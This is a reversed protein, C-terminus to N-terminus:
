YDFSSEDILSSKSKLKNKIAASSNFYDYYYYNYHRVGWSTRFDDKLQSVWNMVEQLSNYIDFDITRVSYLEHDSFLMNINPISATSFENADFFVNIPQSLNTKNLFYLMTYDVNTGQSVNAVTKKVTSYDFSVPLDKVELPLTIYYDHFEGIATASSFVGNSARSVRLRAEKKLALSNLKSSTLSVDHDGYGSLAGNSSVWYDTAWRLNSNARIYLNIRTSGYDGWSWTPEIIKLSVNDMTNQKWINLTYQMGDFWDKDELIGFYKQGDTTKITSMITLKNSSTYVSHPRSISTSDYGSGSQYYNGIDNTFDMIKKGSPALVTLGVKESGNTEYSDTRTYDMGVPMGYYSKLSFLEGTALHKEEITMILSQIDSLESESLEFIISENEGLEATALPNESPKSSNHLYVTHKLNASLNETRYTFLKGLEEEQKEEECAFVFFLILTVWLRKM